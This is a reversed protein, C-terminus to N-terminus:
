AWELKAIMKIPFLSNTAKSLKDEQHRMITTHSKRATSHLKNNHYKGIMSVIVAQATVAPCYSLYLFGAQQNMNGRSIDPENHSFMAYKLDLDGATFGSCTINYTTKLAYGSDPEVSCVGAEPIPGFRVLVNKELWYVRTFYVSLCVHVLTTYIQARGLM